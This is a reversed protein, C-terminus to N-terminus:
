GPAVVDSGGVRGTGVIIPDVAPKERLRWTTIHAAGGGFDHTIWQVQQDEPDMGIPSITAVDLVEATVAAELNADNEPIPQFQWYPGVPDKQTIVRWTANGLAAADNAFWDSSVDGQQDNLRGYKYRSTSDEYVQPTGSPGTASAGNVITAISVGPVAQGAAEFTGFSARRAYEYRDVYTAVSDRSVYYTGLDVKILNAVADRATGTGDTSFDALPTDGQFDRDGTWGIADHILGLAAAVTTPGTSPIADIARNLYALDTFHLRGQNQGYDPESETEDLWGGFLPEWSGGGDFSVQVEGRTGPLILGNLPSASNKANYKGPWSDTLTLDLQGECIGDTGVKRQIKGSTVEETVDSYASEFMGTFLETPTGAFVKATGVVAFGVRAFTTTGGWDVRVRYLPAIM